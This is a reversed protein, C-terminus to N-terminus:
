TEPGVVAVLHKVVQARSLLNVRTVRRNAPQTTERLYAPQLLADRARRGLRLLAGLRADLRRAASRGNQRCPSARM